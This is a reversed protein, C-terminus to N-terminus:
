VLEGSSYLDKVIRGLKDNFIEMNITMEIKIENVSHVIKGHFPHNTSYLKLVNGEKKIKTLLNESKPIILKANSDRLFLTWEKYTIIKADFIVVSVTFMDSKFSMLFNFLEENQPRCYHLCINIDSIPQTIQITEEM